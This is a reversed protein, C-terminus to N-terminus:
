DVLQQLRIFRRRTTGEGIQESDIRTLMTKFEIGCDLSVKILPARKQEDVLKFMARWQDETLNIEIM